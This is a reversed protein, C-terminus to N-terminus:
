KYRAWQNNKDSEYKSHFLTYADHYSLGDAIM